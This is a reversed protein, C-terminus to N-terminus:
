QKKRQERLRRRRAARDNPNLTQPPSYLPAPKLGESRALMEALALVLLHSRM